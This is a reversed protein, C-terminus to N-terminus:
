DSGKGGNDQTTGQPGNRARLLRDVESAPIRWRREGFRRAAITRERMWRRVTRTHVDLREAVEAPSLSAAEDASIRWLGGPTRWADLRGARCWRVVTKYDVGRLSALERPTLTDDGM